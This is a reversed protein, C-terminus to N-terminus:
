LDEDDDEDTVAAPHIRHQGTHRWHTPTPPGMRALVMLGFLAAWPLWADPLGTASLATPGWWWSAVVVAPVVWVVDFRPLILRATRLRGALSIPPRHGSLYRMLRAALLAGALITWIVLVSGGPDQGFTADVLCRGVWAAGGESGYIVHGIVVLWWAFVARNALMAGPQREVPDDHMAGPGVGGFAGGVLGIAEAHAQEQQDKNMGVARYPLQDLMKRQGRHVVMAAVLLVGLTQLMEFRPFAIWPLLAMVLRREWPRASLGCASIFVYPLLFVAALPLTLLVWAGVLPHTAAGVAEAVTLLPKVMYSVNRLGDDPLSEHHEPAFVFGATLMVGLGAVVAADIWTLRMPGFPLPKSATWPTTALWDAYGTRSVPSHRSVRGWGWAFAVVTVLILRAGSGMVSGDTSRSFFLDFGFTAAYLGLIVLMESTRLLRGPNAKGRLKM